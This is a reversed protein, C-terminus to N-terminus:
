DLPAASASAGTSDVAVATAASSVAESSTAAGAPTSTIVMGLNLSVIVSPVTAFHNFFTPSGISSPSIMASISVSLAVM